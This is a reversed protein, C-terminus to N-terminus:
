VALAAGAHVYLGPELALAQKSSVIICHCARSCTASKSDLPTIFVGGGM